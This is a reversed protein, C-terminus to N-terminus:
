MYIPKTGSAKQRELFVFVDDPNTTRVFRMLTLLDHEEINFDRMRQRHRDNIM